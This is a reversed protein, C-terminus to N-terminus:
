RQSTAGKCTVFGACLPHNNIWGRSEFEFTSFIRSSLIVAGLVQGAWPGSPRAGREWVYLLSGSKLFVSSNQQLKMWLGQYGLVPVLVKWWLWTHLGLDEWHAQGYRQSDDGGRNHGVVCREHPLCLLCRPHSTTWGQM